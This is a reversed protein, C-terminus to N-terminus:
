KRMKIACRTKEGQIKVSKNNGAERLVNRIQLRKKKCMKNVCKRAVEEQGEWTECNKEWARVCGVLYYMTENDAILREKGEEEQQDEQQENNNTVTWKELHM